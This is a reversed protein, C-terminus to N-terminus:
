CLHPSDFETMAPKSDAATGGPEVGLREHTRICHCNACVLECKAIEELVKKRTGRKLLYNIDAVKNDGVHDFQMVYYPWLIECDACPTSGKLDRVEKRLADRAAKARDIYPQKNAHYHKRRYARLREANEPSHPDKFPVTDLITPKPSWAAGV